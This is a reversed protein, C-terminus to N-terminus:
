PSVTPAFEPKKRRRRRCYALAPSLLGIPYTLGLTLPNVINLVLARGILPTPVNLAISMLATVLIWITVIRGRNTLGLGDQINLSLCALHSALNLILAIVWVINIFLGPKSIFLTPVTLNSFVYIAPWELMKAVSPGLSAVVIIYTVVVVFSQIGVAALALRRIEQWSTERVHIGMTVVLDGQVWLFLTSILGKLIPTLALVGSPRLAAWQHANGVAMMVLLVFAGLLFPFWWQVNRAFRSLSQGSLWGVMVLTTVTFLWLPSMPYFEMHLM